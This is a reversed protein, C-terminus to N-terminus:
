STLLSCSCADLAAAIPGVVTRGSELGGIIIGVAQWGDDVSTVVLSGSDGNVSFPKGNMGQVEIMDDFGLQGLDYKLRFDSITVGTIRGYTIGSARGIKAVTLRKRVDVYSGTLPGLKPLVGPQCGAPDTLVATAADVLNGDLKLTVVRDLHGVVDSPLQGGYKAGPSLVPDGTAGINENALVHNNSLLGVGAKTQVLAGLTGSTVDPHGVSDGAALCVPSQKEGQGVYVVEVDNHARLVFARLQQSKMMAQDQVRLALKFDDPDDTPVAGVAVGISRRAEQGGLALADLTQQPRLSSPEAPGILLERKLDQVTQWRM